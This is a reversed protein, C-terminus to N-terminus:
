FPKFITTCVNTKVLVNKEEIAYEPLNVVRWLTSRETALIFRINVLLTPVAFLFFSLSSYILM